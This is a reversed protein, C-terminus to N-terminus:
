ILEEIMKECIEILGNRLDFSVINKFGIIEDYQYIAAKLVYGRELESYSYEVDVEFSKYKISYSPNNTIFNYEIHGYKCEIFTLSRGVGRGALITNMTGIRISKSLKVMNNMIEDNM